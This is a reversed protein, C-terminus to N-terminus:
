INVQAKEKTAEVVEQNRDWFVEDEWQTIMRISQKVDEPNAIFDLHIEWQWTEDWELLISVEGFNFISNILWKSSFDITKIKEPEITRIKRSFLGTQNYSSIQKPTIITYDLVYNFYRAWAMLILYIGLLRLIVQTSRQAVFQWIGWEEVSTTVAMSYILAILLIIAVGAPIMTYLIFYLKHRRLFLVKDFWYEHVADSYHKTPAKTDFNSLLRVM